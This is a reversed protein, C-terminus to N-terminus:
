PSPLVIYTADVLPIFNEPDKQQTHLGPCAAGEGVSDRVTKGASTIM